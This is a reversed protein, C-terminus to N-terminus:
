LEFSLAFESRLIWHEGALSQEEAQGAFKALWKVPTKVGLRKYKRRIRKMKGHLTYKKGPLAIASTAVTVSTQFLFESALM